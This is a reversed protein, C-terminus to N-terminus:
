RNFANKIIMKQQSIITEFKEDMQLILDEKKQHTSKPAYIVIVKM